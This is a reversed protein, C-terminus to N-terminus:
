ITNSPAMSFYLLPAAFIASIVFKRWLKKSEREKEEQDLDANVSPVIDVPEYGAKSIERKIDELTIENENYSFTAKGTALNVAAETVGSMKEITKEVRASCAACSMGNVKITEKKMVVGKKM